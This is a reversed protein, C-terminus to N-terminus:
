ALDWRRQRLAAFDGDAAVATRYAAEAKAPRGSRQHALGAKLLTAITTKAAAPAASM